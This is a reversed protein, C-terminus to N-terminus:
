SGKIPCGYRQLISMPLLQNCPADRYTQVTFLSGLFIIVFGSISGIKKSKSCVDANEVTPSEVPSVVLFKDSVPCYM